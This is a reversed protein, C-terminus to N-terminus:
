TPCRAADQEADADVNADSFRAFPSAKDGKEKAAAWNDGVHVDVLGVTSANPFFLVFADTMARELLEAARPVDEARVELMLEDHDFLVLGGEINEDRLMRDISAIATMAILACIGQVPLNAAVTHPSANEGDDKDIVLRAL